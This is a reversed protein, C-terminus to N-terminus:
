HIYRDDDTTGSKTSREDRKSRIIDLMNDLTKRLDTSESKIFLYLIYWFVLTTFSSEFVKVPTTLKEITLTHWLAIMSGIVITFILTVIGIRLYRWVM